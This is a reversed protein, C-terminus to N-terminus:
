RLGPIQYTHIYGIVHLDDDGMTTFGKMNSGVFDGGGQYHTAGFVKENINVDTELWDGSGESTEVLVRVTGDYTAPQGGGGPTVTQGRQRFTDLRHYTNMHAGYDYYFPNESYDIAGDAPTGDANYASYGVVKNIGLISNLYVIKDTTITGSKDAASAFFTAAFDFDPGDCVDTESRETIGYSVNCGPCLSPDTEVVLNGEADTTTYYTTIGTADVLYGLGFSIMHDIDITPRLEKSPGDELEAQKWAPIGGKLSHEVPLRDDAPTILHGDQMLKLYLALNEKPSDIAKEKTELLLPEGTAPDLIFEDYIDTTLLLRGSADLKIDKANNIARIAEDFSDDLVAEPARSLNLRGFEVEQVMDDYYVDVYYTNGNWTDGAAIFLEHLVECETREWTADYSKLLPLLNNDLGTISSIDGWREKDATPQICQSPYPAAYYIDGTDPNNVFDGTEEDTITYTAFDETLVPEGGVAAATTWVQRQVTSINGNPDVWEVEEMVPEGNANVAPVNKTEVGEYRYLVYLDGFLDGSDSMKDKLPGEIDSPMGGSTSGDDESAVVDTSGGSTPATTTTDGTSGSSTAATGGGAGPGNGAFVPATFGLLALAAISYTLRHLIRRKIKM